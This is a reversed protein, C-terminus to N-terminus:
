FLNRILRGRIVLRIAVVATDASILLGGQGNSVGGLNSWRGGTVREGPSIEDVLGGTITADVGRSISLPVVVPGVAYRGEEYNPNSFTAFGAPVTASNRVQLVGAGLNKIEDVTYIQNNPVPGNIFVGAFTGAGGAAQAVVHGWRVIDEDFEEFSRLGRAEMTLVLQKAADVPAPENADLLRNIVNLTRRFQM